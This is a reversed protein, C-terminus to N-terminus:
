FESDEEGATDGLTVVWAESGKKLEASGDCDGSGYNIEVSEEGFTETEIGSSFLQLGNADGCAADFVLPKSVLLSSVGNMGSLRYEGSEIIFTEGDFSQTDSGSLSLYNSFHSLELNYNSEYRFATQGEEFVGSVKESGFLTWDGGNLCDFTTELSFEGTRRNELYTGGMHGYLTTGGYKVGDVYVHFTYEFSNKSINIQEEAQTPNVLFTSAANGEAKAVLYDHMVDPRFTKSFDGGAYPLNRVTAMAETVAQPETADQNNLYSDPEGLEIVPFCGVTAVLLGLTLVLPQTKM